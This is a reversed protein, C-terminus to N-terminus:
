QEEKASSLAVFVIFGCAFVLTLLFGIYGHGTILDVATGVLVPPTLAYVSLSFSEAYVIRDKRITYFILTFLSVLLSQFLRYLTLGVFLFPFAALGACYYARVAWKKLFLQDISFEHIQSFSYVRKEFSSKAIVAENQSIYVRAGGLDEPATEATEDIVAMVHGDKRRIVYVPDDVSKSSANVTSLRGEKITMAPIQEILYALDERMSPILEMHLKVASVAACISAVLLLFLLSRIIGGKAASRYFSASYFSKWLPEFFRIM